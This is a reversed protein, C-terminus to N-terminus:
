MSKKALLFNNSMKLVPTNDLDTLIFFFFQNNFTFIDFSNQVCCKVEKISRIQSVSVLAM